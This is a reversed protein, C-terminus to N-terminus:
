GEKVGTYWNDRRYGSPNNKDPSSAGGHKEAVHAQASKSDDMPAKCHCCYLGPGTEITYVLDPEGDATKVTIKGNGLSILGAAIQRDLFDQSFHQRPGARLVKVHTPKPPPDKRGGAEWAEIAAPDFQRKLFM